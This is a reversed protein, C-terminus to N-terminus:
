LATTTQTIGCSSRVSGIAQSIMLTIKVSPEVCDPDFVISEFKLDESSLYAKDQAKDTVRGSFMMLKM